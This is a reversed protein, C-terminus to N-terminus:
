RWWLTGQPRRQFFLNSFYNQFITKFLLRATVGHFGLEIARQGISAAPKRIPKYQQTDNM